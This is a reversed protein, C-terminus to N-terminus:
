IFTHRWNSSRPIILLNMEYHLIKTSFMGTNDFKVFHLNLSKAQQMKYHSHIITDNGIFIHM